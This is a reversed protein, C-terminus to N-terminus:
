YEWRICLREYENEIIKFSEFEKVSKLTSSDKESPDEGKPTVLSEIGFMLLM